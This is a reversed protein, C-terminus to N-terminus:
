GKGYEGRIKKVESIRETAKQKVTANVDDLFM